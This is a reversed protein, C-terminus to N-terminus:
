IGQLVVVGKMVYVLTSNLLHMTISAQKFSFSWLRSLLVIDVHRISCILECCVKRDDGNAAQQMGLGNLAMSTCENLKSHFKAAASELSLSSPSSDQLLM